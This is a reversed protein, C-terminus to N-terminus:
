KQILDEYRPPASCRAADTASPVAMGPPYMPPDSSAEVGGNVLPTVFSNPRCFASSAAPSATDPDPASPHKTVFAFGQGPAGFLLALTPHRGVGAGPAQEESHLTGPGPESATTLSVFPPAPDFHYGEGDHARYRKAKVAGYICFGIGAAIVVCGIVLFPLSLYKTAGSVLLFTGVAICTIVMCIIGTLFAWM